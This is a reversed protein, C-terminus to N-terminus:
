SRQGAPQRKTATAGSPQASLHMLAGQNPLACWRSCHRPLTCPATGGRSETTQSVRLPCGPRPAWGQPVHRVGIVKLSRLAKALSFRTRVGQCDSTRKRKRERGSHTGTPPFSNTASRSLPHRKAEPWIVAAVAAAPSSGCCLLRSYLLTHLTLVM